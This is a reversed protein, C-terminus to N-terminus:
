VCDGIVCSRVDGLEDVVVPEGGVVQEGWGGWGPGGGGGGLVVGEVAGGDAGQAEFGDGRDGGGGGAGVGDFGHAVFAEVLEGDGGRMARAEDAEDGEAVQQAVDRGAAGARLRGDRVDHEVEALEALHHRLRRVHPDAGRRLPLLFPPPPTAKDLDRAVRRQARQAPKELPVARSNHRLPHIPTRHLSNRNNRLHIQQSPKNPM